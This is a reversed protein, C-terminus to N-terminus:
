LWFIMYIETKIMGAILKSNSYNGSSEATGLQGMNASASIIVGHQRSDMGEKRMQVM